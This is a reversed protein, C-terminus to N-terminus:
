ESKSADKPAMAKSRSKTPQNLRPRKRRQRFADPNFSVMEQVQRLRLVARQVDDSPGLSVNVKYREKLVGLANKIDIDQKLASYEVRLKNYTPELDRAAEMFDGRREMFTEQLERMKAPGVRRALAQSLQAMVVNLNAQAANQEAQIFQLQARDATSMRLDLNRIYAILQARTDSLQLVLAEIELAAYWENYAAAMRDSVPVVNRWGRAFESEIPLIYFKGAKKLGKMQLIQEPDDSAAALGPGGVSWPLVLLGVALWRSMSSM